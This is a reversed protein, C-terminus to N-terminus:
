RSKPGGLVRTGLLFHVRVPRHVMLIDPPPTHRGDSTDCAILAILANPAILASLVNLDAFANLAALADYISSADMACLPGAGPHRPSHGGDNALAIALIALRVASRV